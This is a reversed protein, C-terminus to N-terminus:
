MLAIHQATVSITINLHVYSQWWALQAHSIASLTNCLNDSKMVDLM